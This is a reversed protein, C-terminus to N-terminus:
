FPLDDDDDELSAPFDEFDTNPPSATAPVGPITASLRQQDAEALTGKKWHESRTYGEPALIPLGIPLKTIGVINAYTKDGATRHEITIYAPQGELKHLPAGTKAEDESYSKGRWQSLFKRLNAKEHFSVTFIAAIEHRKGAANKEGLQFVIACKHEVKNFMRNYRYGLDIVDAGVAAFGGEPAKEYATGTDRAVMQDAPM